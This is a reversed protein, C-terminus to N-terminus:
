RAPISYRYSDDLIHTAGLYTSQPVYTTDVPITDTVIIDPVPIRSVNYM